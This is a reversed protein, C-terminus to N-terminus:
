EGAPVWLDDNPSGTVPDDILPENPLPDLDTVEIVTTVSLTDEGESQESEEDEENVLPNDQVPPIIDVELAFCNSASAILCGNLTSGQDIGSVLQSEGTLAVDNITVRPFVSTGTLFTGNEGAIRGNIVIRPSSQSSTSQRTVIDVGGAGATFGRRDDFGDGNGSNQVYVGNDVAFAITGASLAGEDSLIGDNQALREDIAATDTLGAIDSIASATAVVVDDADFLLTGALGNVGNLRIAGQGVIVQVAREASIVFRNDNSLNNLTATGIVRAFGPAEIRFTGNAGLNGGSAAGGTLTFSDIVVNPNGSPAIAATGPAASARAEHNEFSSGRVTINGSFLRSLETASLSYGATTDAGGIFTQRGNNSNTLRLETTTGATGIRATAGIVIDGSAIAITAGSAVGSVTATGRVDATLAGAATVAGNLTATTDSQLAISAAQATGVVLAGNSSSATLAGSARADSLTLTGATGRVTLAGATAQALTFLTAATTTVDASEGSVIASGAQLDSVLIAGEAARVELTGPARITAITVGDNGTLRTASGAGKANVLAGTITGGADVLIESGAATLSGFQANGTVDIDINGEATLASESGSLSAADIIIDEASNFEGLAVNGGANVIIDSGAPVAIADTGGAFGPLSNNRGEDDSGGEGNTQAFDIAVDGAARVLITGAAHLEGYDVTGADILITGFHAEAFNGSVQGQLATLVINGEAGVTDIDIDGTQSLVDLSSFDSTLSGGTVDGGSSIM